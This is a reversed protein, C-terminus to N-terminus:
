PKGELLVDEEDEGFFNNKDKFFRCAPRTMSVLVTTPEVSCIGINTKTEVKGLYVCNRCIRM